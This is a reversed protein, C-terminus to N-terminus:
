DADREHDIETSVHGPRDSTTEAEGGPPELPTDKDWAASVLYVPVGVALIIVTALANWLNEFVVAVGIGISAAAFLIPIVPYGWVRFARPRDPERYRLVIVAVATLAAFAWYAGGTYLLLQFPSKLVLIAIITLIAQLVLSRVPTKTQPNTHAFWRFLAHGRGTAYAIRGGTLAFGNAAGFASIMLALALVRPAASGTARQMAAMATTFTSGAVEGPSLIALYSANVAVFLIAVLWLGGLISLPLNRTPNRVEEAVFPSEDWGGFTWMVPILAAGFLLLFPGEKAAKPTLEVAHVDLWGLAFVAGVAIIALLCLIKIATLVNQVTMGARVGVINIGTVALIAGIAILKSVWPPADLGLFSLCFGGFAVALIGLTGTRMILFKAWSYLFGVQPGFARELFVYIGGTRPWASALEALCLAGCSAIGAGVAWAAIIAGASPLHAAVDAVFIFIGTGIMSGAILAGAGVPGITRRFDGNEM